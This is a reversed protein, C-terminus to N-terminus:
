KDFPSDFDKFRPLTKEEDIEIEGTGNCHSCVVPVDQGGHEGDEIYVEQEGTGNCEPCREKDETNSM